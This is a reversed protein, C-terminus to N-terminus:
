DGRGHGRGHDRGGHGRQDRWERDGRDDRREDRRDDAREYARGPGPGWDDHGYAPTRVFYVPQGCAQYRGCYRGWNRAHGPPVNMYIPSAVVPRPSQVIVVPQQYVVPPPPRDGIRVRGYVGPAVEGELTVSVNAALASGAATLGMLALASAAMWPRLKMMTHHTRHLPGSRLAQASTLAEPGAVASSLVTLLRTLRACGAHAVREGAVDIAPVVARM